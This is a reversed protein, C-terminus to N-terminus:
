RTMPSACKWREVASGTRRKKLFSTFSIHSMAIAMSFDQSFNLFLNMYIATIGEQYINSKKRERKKSNSAIFTSEQSKQLLSLFTSNRLM